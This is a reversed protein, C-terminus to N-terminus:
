SEGLFGASKDFPRSTEEIFSSNTGAAAVFALDDDPLECRRSVNYRRGVESILEDITPNEAFRQYEFLQNLVNNM